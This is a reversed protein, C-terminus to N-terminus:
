RLAKGSAADLLSNARFYSQMARASSAMHFLAIYHIKFLTFSNKSAQSLVHLALNLMSLYMQFLQVLEPPYRGGFQMPIYEKSKCDRVILLSEDCAEIREEDKSIGIWDEGILRRTLVRVQYGLDKGKDRGLENLAANTSSVSLYYKFFLTIGLFDDM